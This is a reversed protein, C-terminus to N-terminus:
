ALIRKTTLRGPAMFPFNIPYELQNSHLVFRVQDQPPIGGITEDLIQQFIEHLQEHLNTIEVDALANTFQVRYNMAKTRFKKTNVQTISEIYFPREDDQAPEDHIEDRSKKQCCGVQVSELMSQYDNWEDLFRQRQEPTWSDSIAPELGLRKNEERWKHIRLLIQLRSEFTLRQEEKNLSHTRELEAIDALMQCANIKEEMVLCFEFTIFINRIFEFLNFAWRFTGVRQHLLINELIKSAITQTSLM